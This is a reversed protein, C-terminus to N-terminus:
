STSAAGDEYQKSKIKLIKFRRRAEGPVDDFVRNEHVLPHLLETTIDGNRM